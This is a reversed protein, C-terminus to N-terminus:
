KLVLRFLESCYSLVVRALDVDLEFNVFIMNLGIGQEATLDILM